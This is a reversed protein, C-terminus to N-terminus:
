KKEEECADLAQRTIDIAELCKDKPFSALIFPDRLVNDVLTTWKNIALLLKEHANVIRAVEQLEEEGLEGGDAGYLYPIFGIQRDGGYCEVRVPTKITM